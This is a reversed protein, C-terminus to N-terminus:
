LYIRLKEKMRTLYVRANGVRMGLSLAIDATDECFWYRRVFLVRDRESLSALFESLATRIAEDQVESDSFFGLESLVDEDFPLAERHVENKRSLFARRRVLALNRVTRLFYPLLPDPRKPPIQAWMACLADSVIEEADADCGLIGYAIKMALRGHRLRLRSLGEEQRALLSQTIDADSDRHSCNQLAIGGKMKSNQDIM